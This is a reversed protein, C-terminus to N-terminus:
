QKPPTISVEETQSAKRLEQYKRLTEEALANQGANRYARSLQFYLSGDADIALAAKLHPIAQEALGMQMFARGLVAHAEPYDERLRVAQELPEVAQEAQQQNMLSDGLIFHLEPVNADRAILDRAMREAATYNRGMYLSTVLEQNLHPNDPSFKLASQWQEISEKHRGQNRYVEAMAQHFEPSPPLKELHSFAERAAENSARSQWYLAEPTKRSRTLALVQQYRGKLFSCEANPTGCVPTGLQRERVEETSAWDAHGTRRYIEALGAHVGRLGPQKELAAQYLAFAATNQGQKLRAEAALVLWWPSPPAMAGLTEFARQSIFEYSRGLGFWARPNGPDASALKHLHPIAAEYRDLMLLADALMARGEREEPALSLAKELLPVAKAPNGTRLHSASLLMLAPLANSQQKLVAEFHPIAKADEGAMHLAMGLNLRLGPNGPMAQVLKEYIAAADAFRDAVMLEKARRSETALADTQAPLEMSLVLAAIALIAQRLM